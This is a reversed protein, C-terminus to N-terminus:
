ISVILVNIRITRLSGRVVYRWGEFCLGVGGSLVNESVTHDIWQQYTQKLFGYCGVNINVLADKPYHGGESTSISNEKCCEHNDISRELLVGHSSKLM